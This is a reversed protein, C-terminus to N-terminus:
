QKKINELKNEESLKGGGTFKDSELGYIAEPVCWVCTFQDKETPKILHEKDNAVCMQPQIYDNPGALRVRRTVNWPKTFMVPDEVTAQYSLDNGKRTWREIVHEQDSHISTFRDAGRTDGGLWTEDNLGVVDVVLTDGEWHGISHGFFSSDLDEPHKRGDLYILRFVPGPAAEYMVAVVQDTQVIHMIGVSARPVGHPKCEMMPDLSTTGGYKTAAIEKVKTMYEPKYAPQNQSIAVPGEYGEGGLYLFVASGDPLKTVNHDGFFEPGTQAATGEDATDNNWFGSLDPHGGATRPTPVEPGTNTRPAGRQAASLSGFATVGVLVIAATGYSLLRKM